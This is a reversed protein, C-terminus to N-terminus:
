CIFTEEALRLYELVNETLRIHIYELEPTTNILFEM